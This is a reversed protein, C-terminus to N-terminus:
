MEPYGLFSSRPILKDLLVLAVQSAKNNKLKRIDLSLEDNDDHSKQDTNKGIAGLSITKFIFIMKWPNSESILM